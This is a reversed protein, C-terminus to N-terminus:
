FPALEVACTLTNNLDNEIITLNTEKLWKGCQEITWGSPFVITPQQDPQLITIAARKLLKTEQNM